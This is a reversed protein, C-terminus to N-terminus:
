LTVLTGNNVTIYNDDVCSANVFLTDGLRVTQGGCQHLHGFVHLHPNARRVANYLYKSGRNVLGVKDLVGYPPGHTLLIDVDDPINGYREGLRDETDDDNFGWDYFRPTWPSGYIKIGKHTIFTDHILCKKTIDNYDVDINLKEAFVEHNGWCFYFACKQLINRVWPCFQNEFYDLQRAYDNKYNCTFDGAHLVLDVDTLDFEPLAAHTDSLCLIRM